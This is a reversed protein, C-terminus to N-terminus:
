KRLHEPTAALAARLPEALDFHQLRMGYVMASAKIPQIAEETPISEPADVLARRIAGVLRGVCERAEDRESRLTVIYGAREQAFKASLASKVREAMAGKSHGELYSALAVAQDVADECEINRQELEENRLRHALMRQCADQSLERFEEVKATLKKNERESQDLRGRLTNLRQSYIPSVEPSSSGNAAISFFQHQYPEPLTRGWHWHTEWRCAQQDRHFNLSRQYKDREGEVAALQARLDAIERDKSALIDRVAAAYEPAADFDCIFRAVLQEPTMNESMAEDEQLVQAAARSNM